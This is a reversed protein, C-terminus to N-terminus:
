HAANKSKRVSNDPLAHKVHTDTLSHTHRHTHSNTYMKILLMHEQEKCTKLWTVCDPIKVDVMYVTSNIRYATIHLLSWWMIIDNMCTQRIQWHFWFWTKVCVSINFRFDNWFVVFLLNDFLNCVSFIFLWLVCCCWRCCCWDFKVMFLWLAIQSLLRDIHSSFNYM